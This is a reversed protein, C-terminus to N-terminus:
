LKGQRRLAEKKAMEKRERRLRERELRKESIPKRPRSAEKMTEEVISAQTRRILETLQGPTANSLSHGVIGGLGSPVTEKSSRLRELLELTKLLHDMNM